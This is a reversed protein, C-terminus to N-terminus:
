RGYKKFCEARSEKVVSMLHHPFGANFRRHMQMLIIGQMEMFHRYRHVHEDRHEGGDLMMRRHASAHGAFKAVAQECKKQTAHAYFHVVKARQDCSVVSQNTM